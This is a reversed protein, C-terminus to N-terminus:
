DELKVIPAISVAFEKVGYATFEISIRADAGSGTLERVVGAGFKRHLVRDGPQFIRALADSSTERAKSAVFGKTVGPIQDLRSGGLTLRPKGLSVVGQSPQLGAQSRSKNAPLRTPINRFAEERRRQM